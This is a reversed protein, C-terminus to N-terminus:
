NQRPRYNQHFLCALRQPTSSTIEPLVVTKGSQGFSFQNKLNGLIFLLTPVGGTDQTMRNKGLRVRNILKPFIYTLRRVRKKVLRHLGGLHDAQM